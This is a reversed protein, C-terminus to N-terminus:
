NQNLKGDNVVVNKVKLLEYRLKEVVVRLEIAVNRRM